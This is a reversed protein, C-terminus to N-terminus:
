FRESNHREFDGMTFIEDDFYEVLLPTHAEEPSVFGNNPQKLSQQMDRVKRQDFEEISVCLGGNSCREHPKKKSMDCSCHACTIGRKYNNQLRQCEESTETTCAILYPLTTLLTAGTTLVFSLVGVGLEDTTYRDVNGDFVMPVEGNGPYLQIRLNPKM